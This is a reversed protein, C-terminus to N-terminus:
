VVPQEPTIGDPLGEAPGAIGEVEITVHSVQPCRERLKTEIEDVVQEARALTCQVIARTAVYRKVKEDDRRSEPIAALLLQEQQEIRERLGFIMSEERIEVEAVVVTNSEDVIVSRLDHFREVEDHQAAIQRFAEEAEIDRIVTLYRMNIMGLFFAVLGLMVAIVLSFGIDWVQNGTWSSLGIGLAAFLVGLVAVSDELLVAILTPDDAEMLYKLPRTEGEERMRRKFERGAVSLVWGDLLLSVLLVLLAIWLPSMSFGLMDVIAAPQDEGLKHYAHWAHAIGLGSGISFLGIASWLNWFINKRAM